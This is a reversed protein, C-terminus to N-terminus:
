VMGGPAALHDALHDALRYAMATITLSRANVPATVHTSAGCISLNAHENSRLHANVVSGKEEHGMRTTGAIIANSLYPANFQTETAGMADFIDRNVKLAEALGASTYPDLAFTVRPRPVGARDRLEPDLDIRKDRNPLTEASASIVPSV